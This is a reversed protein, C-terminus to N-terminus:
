TVKSHCEQRPESVDIVKAAMKVHYERIVASKDERAKEAAVLALRKLFLQYGLWAQLISNM